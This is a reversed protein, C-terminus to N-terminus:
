NSTEEPAPEQGAMHPAHMEAHWTFSPSASTVSAGETKRMGSVAPGASQAGIGLQLTQRCNGMWDITSVNLEGVPQHVATKGQPINTNAQLQKEGDLVRSAGAKPQKRLYLLKCLQRLGRISNCM